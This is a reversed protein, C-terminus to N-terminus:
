PQPPEPASIWRSIKWSGDSQKRWVEFGRLTSRTSDTATQRTFTWTDRVVALDGSVLIENITLETKVQPTVGDLRRAAEMVRAYTDDPRGPYWGILDKAWIRAARLRQGSNTAVVWEQLARCIQAEDTSRTQAPSPQGTFILAILLPHVRKM